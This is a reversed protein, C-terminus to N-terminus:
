NRIHKKGQTGDDHPKGWCNGNQDDPAEDDPYSDYLYNMYNPTPMPAMTTGM